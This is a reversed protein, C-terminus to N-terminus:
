DLLFQQRFRPFLHGFLPFLQSSSETAAPPAPGPQSEESFISSAAFAPSFKNTATKTTTTTTTTTTKKRKDAKELCRGCSTRTFIADNQSEGTRVLLVFFLRSFSSLARLIIGGGWFFFVLSNRSRIQGARTSRFSVRNRNAKRRRPFLNSIFRASDLAVARFLSHIFVLFLLRDEAEIQTMWSTKQRSEPRGQRDSVDAIRVCPRGQLLGTGVSSVIRDATSRHAPVAGGAVGLPGTSRFASPAAPLRFSVSPSGTNVRNVRRMAM